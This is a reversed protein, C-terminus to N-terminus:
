PSKEGRKALLREAELELKAYLWYFVQANINTEPIRVGTGVVAKNMGADVSHPTKVRAFKTLPGCVKVLGM